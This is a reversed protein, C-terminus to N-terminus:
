TPVQEEVPETRSSGRASSSRNGAVALLGALILGVGALQLASPREDLLLVGLLVSGIPQICLLLSTLAAPLRPLSVSILLWGLVQSTVALTLLWGHAPWSPVLDLDGVAIGIAVAVVASVATADFLPGAPRRDDRNGRRLLLIFGAYTVGTLIGFAVGRAPNEGFAGQELVGSILVIGSLAVPLAVLIRGSPRESLVLWAVLPVLVVQLNGLVTALGAGVDEIAYHWAVLDGAFFVGALATLRRDGAVAAGYRRRERLALLGLLPLAYACRFVAATAPAVDAYRVLIASFAITLM